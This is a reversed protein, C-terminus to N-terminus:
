QPEEFCLDALTPKELQEKFANAMTHLRLQKIKEITPHNLM